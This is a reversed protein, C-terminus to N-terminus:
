FLDKLDIEALAMCTDAAGYYIQIHGDAYLAGCSFVVNGYFGHLEYDMEPELIPHESRALVESPHDRDMLFAALVYRNDKNAAHYIEVWGQPTLFPTAGGGVKDDEWGNQRVGILRCHHGWDIQDPSEAMWIEPKGFSSTSPRHLVYYKGGIKGPFLVVDKNDPPFIVGLREFTRFDRTRALKTVIGLRSVGVYSVFYDEGIQTVRPDEVGFTEYEDAPFLAPTSEVSFHVGDRSRALRLHSIGTLYPGEPTGIGRPDSFNYERSGTPFSKLILKGSGPDFIPALYVNGDENLPREVVRLLLLIEAGLRAVAANLVGIVEFDPRSPPVDSPRLIPNLLSRTIM